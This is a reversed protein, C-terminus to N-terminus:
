KDIREPDWGFAKYFKIDLQNQKVYTRLTKVVEDTLSDGLVDSVAKGDSGYLKVLDKQLLGGDRPRVVKKVQYGDSDKKFFM